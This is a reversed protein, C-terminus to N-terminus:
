RPRPSQPLVSDLWQVLPSDEEQERLDLLTRWLVFELVLSKTIEEAYRANLVSVADELQRNLDARVRGVIKPQLEPDPQPLASPADM